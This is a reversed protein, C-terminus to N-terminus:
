RRTDGGRPDARHAADAALGTEVARSGAPPCGPPCRCGADSPRGAPAVASRRNWGSCPLTSVRSRLSSVPSVSASTRATAPSLRSRGRPGSRRSGPLRVDDRRCRALARERDLAPASSSIVRPQSTAGRRDSSAPRPRSRVPREAHSRRRSGPASRRGQGRRPRRPRGPRPNRPERCDGVRDIRSPSEAVPADGSTAQPVTRPGIASRTASAAPSAARNLASSASRSGTPSRVRPTRAHEDGAGGLLRPREHLRQALRRARRRHPGSSRRRAPSGPPGSSSAAAFRSLYSQTTTVLALPARAITSPWRGHRRRIPGGRRHAATPVAVAVASASRPIVRSM